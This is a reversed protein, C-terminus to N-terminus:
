DSLVYNTINALASSAQPTGPSGPDSSSGRFAAVTAGQENLVRANDASLGNGSPRNALLVGNANIYPISISPNSFNNPTSLGGQPCTFDYAMITRFCGIPGITTPPIVPNAYQYGHGYAFPADSTDSTNHDAGFIHGVEHAFCDGAANLWQAVVIGYAYEPSPKLYARGCLNDGTTLRAFLTIVIDAATADRTATLTPHVRLNALDNIFNGTETYTVSVTGALEAQINIASNTFAQNLLTLAQTAAGTATAGNFYSSSAPTYAVLIRVVPANAAAASLATKKSSPQSSSQSKPERVPGSDPDPPPILERVVRSVLYLDEGLPEITYTTLPLRINGILVGDTMTFIVEGGGKRVTGIWSFSKSSKFLGSTRNIQIEKGDPLVMSIWDGEFATINLKGLKTDVLHKRKRISQLTRDTSASRATTDPIYKFFNVGQSWSAGSFLALLGASILKRLNM